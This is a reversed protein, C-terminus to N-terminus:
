YSNLNEIVYLLEEKKSLLENKIDPDFHSLRNKKTYYDMLDKIENIEEIIWTDIKWYFEEDDLLTSFIFLNDRRLYFQYVLYFYLLLLLM